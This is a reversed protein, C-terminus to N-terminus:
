PTAKRITEFEKASKVAIRIRERQAASLELNELIYKFSFGSTEKRCEFWKIADVRFQYGINIALDNYARGLVAILLKKEPISNQNISFFPYECCDLAGISTNQMFVIPIIEQQVPPSLEVDNVCSLPRYAGMENYNM